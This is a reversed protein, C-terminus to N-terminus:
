IKEFSGVVGSNKICLNKELAHLRDETKREAEVSLNCPAQPSSEIEMDRNDRPSTFWCPRSNAPALQCSM